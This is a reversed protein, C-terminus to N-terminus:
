SGRGDPRVPARGVSFSAFSANPDADIVDLIGRSGSRHREGVETCFSGLESPVSSSAPTQTVSAKLVEATTAVPNISAQRDKAEARALRIEGLVKLMTREAAGAYRRLAIGEQSVDLIAREAAEARGKDARTTDLNTQIMQLNAIEADIIEGVQGVAWLLRPEFEMGEFDAPDLGVWHDYIIGRSLMEVQSASGQGPRNGLLNDLEKAEPEDWAVYTRPNTKERLVRLRGIMADIGEIGDLLRRRCTAPDISFDGMIQSILVLRADDYVVAARRMREATLATENRFAREIRISSIAVSRVLLASLVDGEPVLQAELAAVRISVEHEDEGSIVVGGGTLGHKLSNRRAAEKGEVSKPGTSRAANRQNAARQAPTAAM